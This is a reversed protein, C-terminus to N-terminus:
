FEARVLQGPVIRHTGGAIARDGRELTGRVLVRDSETHLVELFSQEVQYIDEGRDSDAGRLLYCSWLGREGRVLAETPLWFGEAPVMQTVELRAVQGWTVELSAGPELKLLVIQTRTSSDLEPLISSVIASYKKNGVQLQQSSGPQLQSVASVPVGMRAEIAGDEVLRFVSQGAGV